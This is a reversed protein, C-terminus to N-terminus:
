TVILRGSNRALVLSQQTDFGLYDDALLINGNEDAPLVEFLSDWSGVDNWGLGAAPLVAVNEAHEMIGYDITQPKITPWVDAIV